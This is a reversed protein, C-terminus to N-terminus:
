INVKRPIAETKYLWADNNQTCLELRGRDIAQVVGARLAGGCKPCYVMGEDDKETIVGLIPVPLARVKKFEEDLGEVEILEIATSISSSNGSEFASLLDFIPQLRARVPTQYSKLFIFKTQFISQNIKSLGLYTLDEIEFNSSNMVKRYGEILNRMLLFGRVEKPHYLAGKWNIPQEFSISAMLAFYHSMHYEEWKNLFDELQGDSEFLALASNGEIGLLEPKLIPAWMLWFCTSADATTFEPHHTLFEYIVRALTIQNELFLAPTLNSIFDVQCLRRSYRRCYDLLYQRIRKRMEIVEDEDSFEPVGSEGTEIEPVTTEGEGANKVPSTVNLLVISLLDRLSIINRYFPHHSQGGSRYIGDSDREPVIFRDPSPIEDDSLQSSKEGLSKKGERSHVNIPHDRVRNRDFIAEMLERFLEETGQRTSLKVYVRRNESRAGHELLKRPVDIWCPLSTIGDSSIWVADSVNMEGKYPVEFRGDTKLFTRTSLETKLFCLVVENSAYEPWQNVKGSLIWRDVDMVVESLYISDQFVRRPEESNSVTPNYTVSALDLETLSIPSDLLYDFAEPDESWQFTVMELNSGKGWSREFAAATMNASGSICWAGKEEVGVIIKAHLLRESIETKHLIEYLRPLDFGSPWLTKINAGNFSTNKESLYLQTETPLLEEYFKRLMRGDKDYYPSFVRLERLESSFSSNIARWSTFQNWLPEKLNHWVSLQDTRSGAEGLWPAKSLIRELQRSAVNEAEMEDTLMRLMSAVTGFATQAEQDPSDTDFTFESFIELNKSFGYMTLNGSGILLKGYKPGVMLLIKIHQVGVDIRPIMSCVYRLGVHNTNRKGSELAEIYGDPDAFILINSCSVSDLAPLVIQEFFGLNLSYTLFVAGSFGESKKSPERRIFELLNISM